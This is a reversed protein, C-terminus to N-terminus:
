AGQSSKRLLWVFETQARSVATTPKGVCRLHQLVLTGYTSFDTTIQRGLGSRRGNRVPGIMMIGSVLIGYSKSRIGMLVDSLPRNTRDAIAQVVHAKAGRISMVTAHKSGTTGSLRNGSVHSNITPHLDRQVLAVHVGLLRDSTPSSVQSQSPPPSAPPAKFEIGTQAAEVDGM